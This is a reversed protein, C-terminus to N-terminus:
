RWRLGVDEGARGGVGCALALGPLQAIERVRQELADHVGGPRPGVAVDEAPAPLAFVLSCVTIWARPSGLCAPANRTPAAVRDSRRDLAAISLLRPGTFSGAALIGVLFNRGVSSTPNM